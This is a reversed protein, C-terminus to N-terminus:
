HFSEPCRDRKIQVVEMIGSIKAFGLKLLKLVRHKLAPAEGLILSDNATRLMSLNAFMTRQDESLLIKSFSHLGWAAFARRNTFSLARSPFTKAFSTRDFTLAATQSFSIARQFRGGACRLGTNQM